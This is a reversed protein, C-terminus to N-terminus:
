TQAEEAMIFSLRYVDYTQKMKLQELSLFHKQMATKGFSGLSNEAEVSTRSPVASTFVSRCQPVSSHFRVAHNSQLSSYARLLRM